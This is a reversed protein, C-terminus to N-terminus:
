LFRSDRSQLNWIRLQLIRSEALSLIELAQNGSAATQWLCLRPRGQSMNDHSLFTVGM